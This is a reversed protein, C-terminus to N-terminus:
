CENVGTNIYLLLVTSSCWLDKAGNMCLDVYKIPYSVVLASCDSLFFPGIYLQFIDLAFPLM